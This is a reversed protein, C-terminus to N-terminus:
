KKQRRSPSIPAVRSRKAKRRAREREHAVEAVCREFQAFFATWLSFFDTPEVKSTPEGFFACTETFTRQTSRLQERAALLSTSAHAMFSEFRTRVAPSPHADLAAAATDLSADLRDLTAAISSLAVRTADYVSPCLKKFPQILREDDDDDEDDGGRKDAHLGLRQEIMTVVYHLLTLRGVNARTDGLKLLSDLRFGRASSANFTNRCEAILNRWCRKLAFCVFGLALTVTFIEKLMASSRLADCAKTVDQLAACMDALLPDITAKLM